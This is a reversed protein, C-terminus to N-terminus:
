LYSFQSATNEGKIKSSCETVRWVSELPTQQLNSAWLWTPPRPLTIFNFKQNGTEQENRQRRHPRNRSPLSVTLNCCDCLSALLDSRFCCVWHESLDAKDLLEPLESHVRGGRSHTIQVAASIPYIHSPKQIPMWLCSSFRALLLVQIWTRASTLNRNPMHNKQSCSEFAQQCKSINGKSEKIPQMQLGLINMPTKFCSPM